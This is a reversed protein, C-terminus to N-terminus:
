CLITPYAVHSLAARCNQSTLRFSPFQDGVFEAGVFQMALM